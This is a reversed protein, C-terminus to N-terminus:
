GGVIAQFCMVTDGEQLAHAARADRPVFQVNFATSLSIPDLDRAEVLADLASGAPLALTEGNLSVQLQGGAIGQAPVAETQGTM